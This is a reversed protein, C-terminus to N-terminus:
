LPLHLWMLISIYSMGHFIYVIVPDSQGACNHATVNFKTVNHLWTPTSLNGSTNLISYTEEAGSFSINYYDIATGNFLTAILNHYNSKLMGSGAKVLTTTPSPKEIIPFTLCLRLSFYAHLYFVNCSDTHFQTGAIILTISMNLESDDTEHWTICSIITGNLLAKSSITLTSVMDAVLKGTTSNSVNIIEVLKGTFPGRMDVRNEMMYAHYTIRDKETFRLIGYNSQASWSIYFTQSNRCTLLLTENNGPCIIPTPGTIYPKCM